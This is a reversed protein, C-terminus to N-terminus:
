EEEEQGQGETTTDDEMAQLPRVLGQVDVNLDLGFMANAREAAYRRPKLGSALMYNLLEDNGEQEDVILREKKQFADQSDIGLYELMESELSWLYQQLSEVNYPANFDLVQIQDRMDSDLVLAKVGSAIEIIANKIKTRMKSGSAYAIMPTKQNSVQTRITDQVDAIQACLYLAYARRGGNELDYVAVCDSTTLTPRSIAGIDSDFSPRWEIADGNINWKTESGATVVMGLEPSRWILAMGDRWLYREILRGVAYDNWEYVSTGLRSMKDIYYGLCQRKPDKSEILDRVTWGGEIWNM